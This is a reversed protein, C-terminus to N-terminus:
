ASPSWISKDSFFSFLCIISKVSGAKLRAKLPVSASLSAWEMKTKVLNYKREPSLPYLLVCFSSGTRFFLVPEKNRIATCARHPKTMQIGSHDSRSHIPVTRFDPSPKITNRIAQSHFSPIPFDPSPKVTNRIARSHFAPILSDPSPNRM